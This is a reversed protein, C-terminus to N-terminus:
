GVIAHAPDAFPVTATLAFTAATQWDNVAV